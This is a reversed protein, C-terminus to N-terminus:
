WLNRWRMWCVLHRKTDLYNEGVIGFQGLDAEPCPERLRVAPDLNFDSDLISVAMEVKRHDVLVLVLDTCRELFDNRGDDLPLIEENCRLQPVRGVPRILNLLLEILGKTLDSRIVEM